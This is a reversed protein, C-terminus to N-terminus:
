LGFSCLEDTMRTEPVGGIPRVLFAPEALELGDAFRRVGIIGVYEGTARLRATKYNQAKGSITNWDPAFHPISDWSFRSMYPENTEPSEARTQIKTM